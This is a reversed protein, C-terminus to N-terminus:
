IIIVGIVVVTQVQPANTHKHAIQKKKNTHRKCETGEEYIYITPVQVGKNNYDIFTAIWQRFTIAEKVGLAHMQAERKWKNKKQKIM